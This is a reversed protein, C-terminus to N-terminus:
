VNSLYYVILRAVRRISSICQFLFHFLSTSYLLFALLHFDFNMLILVSNPNSEREKERSSKKEERESLLCGSVDVLNPKHQSNNSTSGLSNWIHKTSPSQKESSACDMELTHQTTTAAM